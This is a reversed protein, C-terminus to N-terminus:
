ENKYRKLFLLRVISDLLLFFLSGLSLQVGPISPPLSEVRELATPNKCRPGLVDRPKHGPGSTATFPPPNTARVTGYKEKETM